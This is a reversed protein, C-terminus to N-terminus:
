ITVAIPHEVNMCIWNQQITKVNCANGMQSYLQSTTVISQNAIKVMKQVELILNVIKASALSWYDNNKKAHTLYVNSTTSMQNAICPVHLANDM